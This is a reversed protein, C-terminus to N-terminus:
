AKLLRMAFSKMLTFNSIRYTMAISILFFVGVALLNIFFNLWFALPFMNNLVRATAYVLFFIISTNIMNRWPYKIPFNLASFYYALIFTVLHSIATVWAAAFIGFKPIFIINCAVNVLAAIVTIVPILKTKEAFFISNAAFCYLGRFIYAFALIPILPISPYFAPRTMLKIMNGSLIVYGLFIGM